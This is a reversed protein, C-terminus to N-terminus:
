NNNMRIQEVFENIKECAKGEEYCKVMNLYNNLNNIYTERNFLSIKESLEKNSKCVPYPLDYLSCYLGRDMEYSDIDPVFLFVPKRQLCYDWMSSSYDTILIDSILLLDQMDPYKSVDLANDIGDMLRAQIVMPHLRYLIIWDGGFKRVLSDYLGNYDLENDEASFDGRFTPAYLAIKEGRICLSDKIKSIVSDKGSKFFIDNRPVGCNLVHGEYEFSDRIVDNTYKESHSLFCTANRYAEPNYHIAYKGVKKVPNGHWTNIIIQEKRYPLISRPVFNGLIIGATMEHYISRMSKKSIFTINRNSGSLIRYDKAEWIYVYKGPFKEQMYEAFARADFGYSTGNFNILYIKNKNVPFVYFLRLFNKVMTKLIKKM